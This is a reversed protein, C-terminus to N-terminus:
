PRVRAEGQDHSQRAWAQRRTGNCRAIPNSRKCECNLRLSVKASKDLLASGLARVLVGDQENEECRLAAGCIRCGNARIQAVRKLRLGGNSRSRSVAESAGKGALSLGRVRLRAWVEISPSTPQATSEHAAHQLDALADACNALAWSCGALAESGDLQLLDGALTVVWESDQWDETLCVGITCILDVRVGLNLPRGQVLLGCLRVTADRVAHDKVTIQALVLNRTTPDRAFPLAHKRAANAVVTVAAVRRGPDDCSFLAASAIRFADNIPFSANSLAVTWSLFSLSQVTAHSSAVHALKADPSCLRTLGIRIGLSAHIDGRESFPFPFSARGGFLKKSKPLGTLSVALFSHSQRSSRMLSCKLGVGALIISWRLLLSHRVPSPISRQEYIQPCRTLLSRM